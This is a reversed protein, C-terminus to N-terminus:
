DRRGFRETFLINGGRERERNRLKQQWLLVRKGQQQQRGALKKVIALNGWDQPVLDQFGMGLGGWTYENMNLQMRNSPTNTKLTDLNKLSEGFICM